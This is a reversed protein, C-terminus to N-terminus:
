EYELRLLSGAPQVRTFRLGEVGRLRYFASGDPQLPVFFTREVPDHSSDAPATFPGSPTPATELIAAAPATALATTLWSRRPVIRTSFFAGPVPTSATPDELLWGTASSSSPQYLGRYDFITGNAGTGSAVTNYSSQVAFHVAALQWTNGRRVFLPGGSDGTSLMAEDAGRAQDFRCGAVPGYLGINTGDILLEVTNTGWRINWDMRGWNWGALTPGQGRDVLIESGRTAGRGLVVVMDGARLDQTAVPANSAFQGAVHWLRLDAATDTQQAVTRYSRGNWEFRDGVTGGIHAATLFSSPGVPVGCFGIFTGTWQWGSNALSGTPATTNRTGDGPDFVVVARAPPLLLLLLLLNLGVFAPWRCTTRM